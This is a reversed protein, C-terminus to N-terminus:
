WEPFERIVSPNSLQRWDPQVGCRSLTLRDADYCAGISAHKTTTGDAHGACAEVLIGLQSATLGLREAGLKRVVVAARRGHDPDTGDVRRQTDHMFAFCAVVDRDAKPMVDCIRGAIRAVCRWHEPGHIRSSRATSTSVELALAGLERYGIV